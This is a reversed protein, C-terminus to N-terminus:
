YGAADPSIDKPYIQPKTSLITELGCKRKLFTVILATSRQACQGGPGELDWGLPNPESIAPM